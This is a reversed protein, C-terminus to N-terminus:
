SRYRDLPERSYQKLRRDSNNRIGRIGERMIHKRRFQEFVRGQSYGGNDRPEAGNFRIEILPHDCIEFRPVFRLEYVLNQAKVTICFHCSFDSQIGSTERLDVVPLLM